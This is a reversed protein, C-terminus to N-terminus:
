KFLSNDLRIGKPRHVSTPVLCLLLMSRTGDGHNDDEDYRRQHRWRWTLAIKISNRISNDPPHVLSHSFARYLIALVCLPAASDIQQSCRRAVFVMGCWSLGIYSQVRYGEIYKNLERRAYLLPFSSSKLYHFTISNYSVDFTYRLYLLLYYINYTYLIYVTETMSMIM